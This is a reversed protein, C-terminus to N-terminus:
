FPFEDIKEGSLTYVSDDTNRLEKLVQILERACNRLIESYMEDLVYENSQNRWKRILELLEKEM